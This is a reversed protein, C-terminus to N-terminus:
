SAAPSPAPSSAPAPSGSPAPSGAAPAASPLPSGGLQALHAAVTQAIDSDPALAIVQGWEERAKEANPPEQSFYMFGLDYHAELNKPDIALVQRWTLEASADDGTNYQAAGLALLADVHKPDIALIKKLWTEATAYDRIGYYLNALGMLSVTDSPNAAIKQMLASVQAADLGGSAAPKPTGTLGPLGGPGFGYIGLVVAAVVALAVGAVGAKKLTGGEIVLAGSGAQPRIGRAQPRAARAQAARRERRTVIVPGDADDLFGDLDDELGGRIVPEATEPPASAQAAGGLRAYAEDAETLRARAWGRLSSPATALFDLLEDHAAEVEGNSAGPGLGLRALLDRDDPAGPSRPDSVRGSM